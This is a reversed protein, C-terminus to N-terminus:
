KQEKRWEANLRDREAGVSSRRSLSTGHESPLSVYSPPFWRAACGPVTIWIDGDADIRKMSVNVILPDGEKLNQIQEQTLM